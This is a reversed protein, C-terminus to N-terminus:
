VPHHHDRVDRQCRPIVKLLNPFSQRYNTVRSQLTSANLLCFQIFEFALLPENFQEAPCQGFLQRFVAESDVAAM